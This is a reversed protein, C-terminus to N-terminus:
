KKYIKNYKKVKNPHSNIKNKNQSNKKCIMGNNWKIKKQGTRMSIHSHKEFQENKPLYTKNNKM